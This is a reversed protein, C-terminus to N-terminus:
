SQRFFQKVVSKDEVHQLQYLVDKIFKDDPWKTLFQKCYHEAQEYDEAMISTHIAVRLAKSPEPYGMNVLEPIYEMAKKFDNAMFYSIVLQYKNDLLLPGYESSKELTELTRKPDKEVERYYVAMESVIKAYEPDKGKLAYPELDSIVKSHANFKDETNEFQYIGTMIYSSTGLWYTKYQYKGISIYRAAQMNRNSNVLVFTFALITFGIISGAIRSSHFVVEKNDITGWAYIVFVILTIGPIGMLDWDAPMSFLPNLVFFLPLYMALLVGSFRLPPANWNVKSRWYFALLLGVLIASASWIFWTSFYDFFHAPSFLNYHDLPAPDSSSVPLFLVDYITDPTYFRRGFTSKTVFVYILIGAGYMPLLMYKLLSAWTITKKNKTERQNFILVLVLVPVLLWGTIHFKINLVVILALIFLNLFQRNDLYRIVAWWFGAILAYVPAYVENHGCFVQILPTGIVILIMLFRHLRNATIRQIISIMFFLYLGGSLADVIRFCEGVSLGLGYSLTGILGYTTASGIKPDFLNFSFLKNTYAQDLIELSIEPNPVLFHADGYIDTYMPFQYFLICAAIPVGYKWLNEYEANAMVDWTNFLGKYISYIGFAICAALLIGGFADPLFAPFHFAWFRDPFLLGLAYLGFIFLSAILIIRIGSGTNEKM